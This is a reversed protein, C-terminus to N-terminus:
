PIEYTGGGEYRRSNRSRQTGFSTVRAAEQMPPQSHIQETPTVPTIPQQGGSRPRSSVRRSSRGSGIGNGNSYGSVRQSRGQREREGRRSRSRSRSRGSMRRDLDNGEVMEEGVLYGNGLGNKRRLARAGEWGVGGTLVKESWVGAKSPKGPWKGKRM